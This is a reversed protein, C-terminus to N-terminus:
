HDALIPSYRRIPGDRSGVEPAIWPPMGRWGETMTEESEVRQALNFDIIFLRPSMKREAIMDVVANGPKLDCHTVKHWHLFDM